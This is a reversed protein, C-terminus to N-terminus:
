ALPAYADATRCWKGCDPCEAVVRTKMVEKRRVIDVERHTSVTKCYPCFQLDAAADTYDMITYKRAM